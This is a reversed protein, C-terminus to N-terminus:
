REDVTYRQFEDTSIRGTHPYKALGWGYCCQKDHSGESDAAGTPTERNEDDVLKRSCRQCESIDGECVIEGYNVDVVVYISVCLGPRM